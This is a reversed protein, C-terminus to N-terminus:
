AGAKDSKRFDTPTMGAQKRFLYSFYHPDNYGVAGAIESARDSTNILLHKAKDMRTRTIYETFTVGMEQSFVTCFHNNSLAVHSAVDHLTIDPRQYNEEIFARARRLIEGYRSAAHDDRYTLAASILMQAAELAKDPCRSLNMLETQQTLWVPLVQAPDGGCQKIIRTAALLVDILMYNLVLLSQSATDGMSKFYDEAIKAGDKHAAYHLKEYLPLITGDLLEAASSLDVDLSGVIRPPQGHISRLIARASALAQPLESLHSVPAGIAIAPMRINSKKAEHELAGALAYAREELDDQGEGSQEPQMLLIAPNVLLTTCYAASSQTEVLRHLTGTLTSKEHASVEGLQIVLYHRAKLPIGLAQSEELLAPTSRGELLQTVVRERAYRSSSALQGMLLDVDAQKERERRIKEAVAELTEGLKQASVPKLLYHKVGISIAEQAYKFDDYGSLIIIHTWPLAQSVKRALTLGDMFPMRIDTILIDPKLDQIMPFAMEGDPAEGCLTFDSEDWRFSNRIGERIVIEDDVLFAKFM